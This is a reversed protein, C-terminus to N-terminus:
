MLVHVITKQDFVHYIHDERDVNVIVVYVDSFNISYHTSYHTTKEQSLLLCHTDTRNHISMYHLSTHTYGGDWWMEGAYYRFNKTLEEAQGRTGKRDEVPWTRKNNM